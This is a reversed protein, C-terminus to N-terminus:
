IEPEELARNLLTALETREDADLGELARDTTEGPAVLGVRTAADVDLEDGLSAVLTWSGEDLADTDAAALAHPGDAVRSPAHSPPPAM